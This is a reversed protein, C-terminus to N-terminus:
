KSGALPVLPQSQPLFIEFTQTMGVVQIVASNQNVKVIKVWKKENTELTVEAPADGVALNRNNILVVEQGPLGSIMKLKFSAATITPAAVQVVAVPVPRMTSDPFFPNRVIGNTPNFVSLPPPGDLKVSNTASAAAAPKTPEAQAQTLLFGALALGLLLPRRMSFVTLTKM